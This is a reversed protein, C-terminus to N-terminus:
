IREGGVEPSGEGEESRREHELEGAQLRRTVAGEADAGDADESRHDREAGARCHCDGHAAGEHLAHPRAPEDMAGQEVRRVKREGGAHGPEHELGNGAVVARPEDKECRKEGAKRVYDGVDPKEACGHGERLGTRGERDPPLPEVERAEV